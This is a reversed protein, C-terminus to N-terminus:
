AEQEEQPEKIKVNVKEIIDHSHAFLYDAVAKEKRDYVDPHQDKIYAEVERPRLHISYDIGYIGLEDVYLQYYLPYDDTDSDCALLFEDPTKADELKKLAFQYKEIETLNTFLDDIIEDANDWILASDPEDEYKRYLEEFCESVYRKRDKVYQEYEFKEVEDKENFDEDCPYDYNKFREIKELIADIKANDEDTAYHKLYGIFTDDDETNTSYGVYLSLASNEAVAESSEYTTEYMRLQAFDDKNNEKYAATLKDLLEFDSLM